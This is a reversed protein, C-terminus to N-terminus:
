ELYKLSRNSILQLLSVFLTLYLPFNVLIIVIEPLKLAIMLQPIGTVCSLCLNAFSVFVNGGFILLSTVFEGMGEASMMGMIGNEFTTIFQINGIPLEYLLSEQEAPTLNFINAEQIAYPGITSITVNIILFWLLISYFKM